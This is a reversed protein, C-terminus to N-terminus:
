EPMLEVFQIDTCDLNSVTVRRLDDNTTWFLKGGAANLSFIQDVKLLLISEGTSPNMRYIGSDADDVRVGSWFYYLSDAYPTINDFTQNSFATKEGTVTNYKFQSSSNDRTEYYLENVGVDVTGWLDQVLLEPDTSGDLPMRSLNTTNDSESYPFAYIMGGTIFFSEYIDAKWLLEEGSGDFKMRYLGSDYAYYLYEDYLVLQSFYGEKLIKVNSGDVNMVCIGGNELNLDPGPYSLLSFILGSNVNISRFSGQALLESPGGAIPTRCLDGEIMQDVHYIYGDYEAALGGHLLNAPLNGPGSLIVPPATEVTTPVASNTDETSDHTVDGTEDVFEETETRDSKKRKETEEKRISLSCGTTSVLLSLVLMLLMIKKM